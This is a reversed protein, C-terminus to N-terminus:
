LAGHTDEEKCALHTFTRELSYGVRAKWALMLLEKPLPEKIWNSRWNLLSWASLFCIETPNMPYGFVPFLEMILVTRWFFTHVTAGTGPSVFTVDNVEEKDARNKEM